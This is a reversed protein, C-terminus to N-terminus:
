TRLKHINERLSRTAETASDLLDSACGGPRAELECQEKLLPKDSQFISLEELQLSEYACVDPLQLESFHLSVNASSSAVEAALLQVCLEM